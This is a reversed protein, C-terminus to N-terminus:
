EKIMLGAIRLSSERAESTERSESSGQSTEAASAGAQAAKGASPNEAPTEQSSVTSSSAPSESPDGSEDTSPEGPDGPGEPISIVNLELSPINMVEFADDLTLEPMVTHRGETLASVDVVVKDPHITLSDLDEKLGRVRISIRESVPRYILDDQEGEYLLEQSEVTYTREELREVSMTVQVEHNNLGAITVGEPLFEELSVTKVVDSRAGTIDLHTSPIVLTHIQALVSKLGVVPVTRVDSSVGTFRYGAAVTGSVQFDLTLNKVKLVTMQYTVEECDSEIRDSLTIKNGNADYYNPEVTGQIDGNVGDTNIEIGVSSIQGILSEPGEAYIYAPSLVVDGAEYGEDMEGTLQTKLDFRKRQLPETEIKITSTRTVPNSELFDGHSLVEIKIPISGTVSWLETMDAYARFDGAKIRHANTTKVEYSITTTKKGVIEYTLDNGTLVEENIIEVPVEVTNTVVPDAVNVVGLWVLFACLLSLLKLGWRKNQKEKM